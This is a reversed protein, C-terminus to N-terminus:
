HPHSKVPLQLDGDNLASKENKSLGDGCPSKNSL